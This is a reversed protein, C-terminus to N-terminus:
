EADPDNQQENLYDMIGAAIGVAIKDQYDEEQLLACEEADSLFGIEILAAPMETKSIVAYNATRVERDRANTQLVVNKQVLEALKQSSEEKEEAYYTEIGDGEGSESSNCHISVYVEAEKQNAYEAREGLKVFIDEERVMGVKYGAKELIKQVKKAIQLNIQKELVEGASTGQDKGGHGADLVIDAKGFSTNWPLSIEKSIVSIEEGGRFLIKALVASMGLVTVVIFLVMLTTMIRRLIKKRRRRRRKRRVRERHKESQYSTRENMVLELFQCSKEKRRLAMDNNLFIFKLNVGYISVTEGPLNRGGRSIRLFSCTLIWSSLLISYFLTMKGLM